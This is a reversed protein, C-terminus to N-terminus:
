ESHLSDIYVKPGQSFSELVLQKEEQSMWELKRMPCDANHLIEKVLVQIRRVFANIEEEQFKETQYDIHLRYIGDNDHDDVHFQLSELQMGNHYWTTEAEVSLSANQYSFLVDYLNGTFGYRERLMQKVDEYHFRQHRLSAYVESHVANLNESFSKEGNLSVLLPITNVFNGWIKRERGMRRNGVTFGIYFQDVNRMSRNLCEAFVTLFFAPSSFKNEKLYDRIQQAERGAITIDVRKAEFAIENKESLFVPECREYRGAFFDQGQSYRKDQLYRQETEYYERYPYVDIPFDEAYAVVQNSIVAVTWADGILHHAHILIGYRDPLRVAHIQCLAGYMDVPQKALRNGYRDLSEKSSFELIQIDQPTYETAEQLPIGNEEMIRLRAAENHKFLRNVMRKLTIDDKTGPVLVSGCIVNISGGAYKESDYILRQPKTLAFRQEM